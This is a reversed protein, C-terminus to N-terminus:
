RVFHLMHHSTQSLDFDPLAFHDRTTFSTETKQRRNQRMNSVLKLSNWQMPRCDFCAEYLRSERKAKDDTFGPQITTGAELMKTFQLWTRDSRFAAIHRFQFLYEISM